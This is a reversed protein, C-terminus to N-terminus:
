RCAWFGGMDFHFHNAHAANHDPGFVVNFAECAGEHIDRLFAAKQPQRSSNWDREVTVRTGDALVFGTIDIANARAHESLRGDSRNYVNRCAYTGVHEVRTVPQNFHKKAAQQLTNHRFIEWGAALPCFATFSQSFSVGATSVRVVNVLPCEGGPQDELPRFEIDTRRLAQLCLEPNRKIRYIKFSTLLNPPATLDLPAWPNYQPPVNLLGSWLAGGALSVLLLVIVVWRM